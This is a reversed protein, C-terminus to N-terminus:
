AWAPSGEFFLAALWLLNGENTASSLLSLPLRTTRSGSEDKRCQGQRGAMTAYLGFIQKAVAMVM